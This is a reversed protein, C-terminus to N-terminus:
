WTVLLERVGGTLRDSRDTLEGLPRALRLQPFRRFLAPFVIRLETRALSAGICFHAGHGFGVHANPSRAPQFREPDAFATPDQNAAGLAVIVADGRAITQGGIELDTHAYRPIGLGGPSALRLIEEVTGDLLGDPDAIFADRRRIDSLLMLVGLDIRGATTEHGAFILGAALRAVDEDAFTPYELQAAVLDSIVDSTPQARKAEALGSTYHVFETMALDADRADDLRGIRDSLKRFLARDAYPVGLLECIVLVPLPFALHEHLDVGDGTSADHAAQMADLCGTVLEAVHEGLARMRKASFAPTLLQRLRRSDAQETDFDGSPGGLVAAGSVKAANQPSPHSRGLRRDSLVARADAYRTVLWVLDGAPTRVRTLPAQDRLEAYLPALEVANPRDFPLQPATTM